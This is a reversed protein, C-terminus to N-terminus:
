TKQSFHRWSSPRKATGRSPQRPTERSYEYALNHPPISALLRELQQASEPREAARKKLWAMVIRDLEPPIDLDARRERMPEPIARQHMELLDRRTQGSLPLEGTLAEYMLAG